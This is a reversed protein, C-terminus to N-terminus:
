RVADSGAHALRAGRELALEREGSSIEAHVLDAHAVSKVNAISTGARQAGLKHRRHHDGRQDLVGHDVAQARHRLAAPDADGRALQVALKEHVDDVVPAAKLARPAATDPEGVNARPEGRLEATGRPERQHLAAFAADDGRELERERGSSAM